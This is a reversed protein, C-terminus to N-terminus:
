EDRVQSSYINVANLTVARSHDNFEVRLADSVVPEPLVLGFTGGIERGEHVRVWRGGSQVSISFSKVSSDSGYRGEQIQVQDFSFAKKLRVELWPKPDTSGACWVARIYNGEDFDTADTAVVAEAKTMVQRSVGCSSARADAGITLSDGVSRVVPLDMARCDLELAVITDYEHVITDPRAGNFNDLTIELRGGKQAVRVSGGTLVRSSVVKAPLDPLSLEGAWSGLVHLYVTNGDKSRTSCGWPGPTYPGGRTAYVSEGYQKLWSGIQLYREVHRPNITGDPAPGTNLLLNGGGGACRVLLGVADAISYPRSDGSYGWGGGIKACTEWPRNIQFRGIENEPGDFDGMRWNRPALRHNVVLHPQIDRLLKLMEASRWMDPHKGLGDFWIGDIRGCNTVLERLQPYLFEDVFRDFAKSPYEARYMPETWDPQSYYWHIKIGYRRCAAALEACIDRKFPSAMIDYGTVGSEFMCFGNHHKATFVLYRAGSDKVMRVWQNADFGVPMFTKYQSNYVESPIGRTVTGDSPHHPRRGKRGWSMSGTMQCSPDWHMFVGFRDDQWEELADPRARLTPLLGKDLSAVYSAHKAPAAYPM